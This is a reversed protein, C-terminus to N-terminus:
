VLILVAAALATVYVAFGYLSGRRLFRILWGIALYGIVAASVMGAILAPLFGSLDAVEKLELASLAGAALMVPVAMLFSFRAASARDLGRVLGGAITSGSRSVGPFLSLIQFCGIVLADSVTLAEVDKRFRGSREALVLLGATVLLFYAVARESDFAAEVADKLVLGALGAPVTALLLLGALRVEPSERRSPDRLASLLGRVIAALDSRFYVFVAALTGLQVLVDFVFVQDAPIEWGFLAPVLVLHGSSSIPLFETLGQVIGLVIAQFVTM